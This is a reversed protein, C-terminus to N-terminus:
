IFDFIVNTHWIYVTDLDNCNSHLSQTIIPYINMSHSFISYWDDRWGGGGFFFFCVIFNDKLMLCFHKQSLLLLKTKDIKPGSLNTTPRAVLSYNSDSYTKYKSTFNTNILFGRTKTQSVQDLRIYREMARM